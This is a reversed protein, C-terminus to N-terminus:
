RLYDPLITTEDVIANALQLHTLNKAGSLDAGKLITGNLIAGKFDAGRASVGTMNARTLNAGVLSAHDLVTRRIFAGELNLPKGDDPVIAQRGAPV